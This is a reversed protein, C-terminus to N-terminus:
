RKLKETEAMQDQLERAKREAIIKAQESQAFDKDTGTLRSILGGLGKGAVKEATEEKREEIKKEAQQTTVTKGAVTFEVDSIGQKTIDIKTQDENVMKSKLGQLDNSNLHGELKIRKVEKAEGEKDLIVNSDAERHEYFDEALERETGTMGELTEKEAREETSQVKGHRDVNRQVGEHFREELYSEMITGQVTEDNEFAEEVTDEIEQIQEENEEDRVEGFGYNQISAEIVAKLFIYDPSKHFTKREDPELNKIYAHLQAEAELGQENNALELVLQKLQQISEAAEKKEAKKPANENLRINRQANEKEAKQEEILEDRIDQKGEWTEADYREQWKKVDQEEIKPNLTRLKRLDKQFEAREVKFAAINKEEGSIYPQERTLLAYYYEMRKLSGPKKTEPDKFSDPNKAWSEYHAATKECIFKERKAEGVKAIMAKETLKKQLVEKDKNEKVLEKHVDIEKQKDMFSMEEFSGIAMKFAERDVKGNEDKYVDAMEEALEAEANIFTEWQNINGLRKDLDLTKYYSIMEDRGKKSMKRLSVGEVTIKDDLHSYSTSEMGELKDAKDHVEQQKTLSEAKLSQKIMGDIAQKDYLEDNVSNFHAEFKEINDLFTKRDEKNLNKILKSNGDKELGGLSYKKFKAEINNYVQRREYLGNPDKSNVGEFDVKLKKFKGVTADKKASEKEIWDKYVEPDHVLKSNKELIDMMDKKFEAREPADEKLEKSEEKAENQKLKKEEALKQPLEKLAKIAKRLEEPSEIRDLKYDQKFKNFDQLEMKNDRFLQDKTQALQKQAEEKEKALQKINTLGKALNSREAASLKSKDLGKSSSGLSNANNEIKSVMDDASPM